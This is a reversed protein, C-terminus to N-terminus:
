NCIGRWERDADRASILRDCNSSGDCGRIKGAVSNPDERSAGVCENATRRDSQGVASQLRHVIANQSRPVSGARRGISILDKYGFYERVIRRDKLARLDDNVGGKMGTPGDVDAQKTVAYRTKSNRIMEIRCVDVPISRFLDDDTIVVLYTNNVMGPRLKRTPRLCDIRLVAASM